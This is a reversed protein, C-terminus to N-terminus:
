FYHSWWGNSIKLTKGEGGLSHRDRHGLVDVLRKFLSECWDLATFCGDVLM